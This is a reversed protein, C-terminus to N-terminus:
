ACGQEAKQSRRDHAPEKRRPPPQIRDPQFRARTEGGDKYWPERGTWEALRRFTRIHACSSVAQLVQHNGANTTAWGLNDKRVSTYPFFPCKCLAHARVPSSSHM